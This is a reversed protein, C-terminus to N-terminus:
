RKHYLRAQPLLRLLENIRFRLSFTKELGGENKYRGKRCFFASIARFPPRLARAEPGSLARFETAKVGVEPFTFILLAKGPISRQVIM